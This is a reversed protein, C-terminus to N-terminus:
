ASRQFAEGLLGDAEIKLLSVTRLTAFLRAALREQSAAFVSVSVVVPFVM